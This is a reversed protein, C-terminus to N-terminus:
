VHKFIVRKDEGVNLSIFSDITRRATMLVVGDTTLAEVLCRIYQEGSGDIGILPDDLLTLARRLVYAALLQVRRKQGQSMKEIPTRVFPELEFLELGASVYDASPRTRYFEAVLHVYEIPNVFPPLEIIEPVYFISRRVRTDKYISKGCLLVDGRLPRCIGAVTKMFTSKGVGNPGYLLLSEGRRLTLSVNLLPSTYGCALDQVDLMEM